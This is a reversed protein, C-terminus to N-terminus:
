SRRIQKPPSPEIRSENDITLLEFTGTNPILVPLSPKKDLIEESFTLSGRSSIKAPLRLCSLLLM